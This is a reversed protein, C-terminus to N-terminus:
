SSAVPLGSLKDSSVMLPTIVLASTSRFRRSMQLSNPERQASRQRAAIARAFGLVNKCTAKAQEVSLCERRETYVLEKSGLGRETFRFLLLRAGDCTENTPILGKEERQRKGGRSCQKPTFSRPPFM